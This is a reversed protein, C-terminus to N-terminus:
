RSCYENISVGRPGMNTYIPFISYTSQLARPDRVLKTLKFEIIDIMQGPSWPAKALKGAGFGAILIESGNAKWDGETDNEHILEVDSGGQGDEQLVLLESYRAWYRGDPFLQLHVEVKIKRGMDDQGIITDPFTSASKFLLRSPDKCDGIVGFLLEDFASGALYRETHNSPRLVAQNQAYAGAQAAQGAMLLSVLVLSKM